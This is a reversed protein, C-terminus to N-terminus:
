TIEGKRRIWYESRRKSHAVALIWITDAWIFYAVYYPFVKFNVRRYGKARLSPLEPNLLIWHIVGRAEEKLRLGLGAEIREHYAVAKDLENEAQELIQLNM